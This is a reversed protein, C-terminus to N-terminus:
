KLGNFIASNDYSYENQIVEKFKSESTTKTLIYESLVNISRKSFIDAEGVHIKVLLLSAIGSLNYFM